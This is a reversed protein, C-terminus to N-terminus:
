LSPTASKFRTVGNKPNARHGASCGKMEAGHAKLPQNATEMFFKKTTELVKGFNASISSTSQAPIPIRM